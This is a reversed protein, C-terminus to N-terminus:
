TTQHVWWRQRGTPRRALSAHHARANSTRILASSANIGVAPRFIWSYQHEAKFLSVLRTIPRITRTAPPATSEVDASMTLCHRADCHGHRSVGRLSVRYPTNKVLIPPSVM